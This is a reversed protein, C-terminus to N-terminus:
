EANRGKLTQAIELLAKLDGDSLQRAISLLSAMADTRTASGEDAEFFDRVPSRLADSLKILKAYSPHNIGRELNSIADISLGTAEALDSQSRKSATRIARLRKGFDNRTSM